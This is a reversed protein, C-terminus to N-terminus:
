DVATSGSSPCGFPTTAIHIPSTHLGSGFSAGPFDELAVYAQNLKTDDLGVFVDVASMVKLHASLKTGPEGHIALLSCSRLRYVLKQHSNSRVSGASLPPNGNGAFASQLRV